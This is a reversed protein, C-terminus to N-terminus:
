QFNMIAHNNKITKKKGIYYKSSNKKRTYVTKKKATEGLGLISIIDKNVINIYLKKRNNCFNIQKKTLNKYMNCVASNYLNIPLVSANFVHVEYLKEGLDSDLLDISVRGGLSHGVLVVKYNPYKKYIYKLNAYTNKYILRTTHKNYISLYDTYLDNESFLRKMDTGRISMVVTKNVNNLFTVFKTTTLESIPKYNKLLNSNINVVRTTRKYFSNYYSNNNKTLRRKPYSYAALLAYIKSYKHPM